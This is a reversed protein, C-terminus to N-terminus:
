QSKSDYPKLTQSYNLDCHYVRGAVDCALIERFTAKLDTLVYSDWNVETENRHPYSVTLLEPYYIISEYNEAQMMGWKYIVGLTTYCLSFNAGCAVLKIEDSGMTNMDPVPVPFREWLNDYGLGLQGLLGAGFAYLAKSDKTVLLAHSYGTTISKFRISQDPMRRSLNVLGGFSDFLHEGEQSIIGSAYVEGDKSLFMNFQLGMKVDVMEEPL